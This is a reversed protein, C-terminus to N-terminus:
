RVESIMPCSTTPRTQSRMPRFVAITPVVKSITTPPIKAVADDPLLSCGPRVRDTNHLFFQSIHLVPLIVRSATLAASASRPGKKVKPQKYSQPEPSLLRLLPHLTGRTCYRQM